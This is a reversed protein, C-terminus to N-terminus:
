DVYVWIDGSGTNIWFQGSSQKTTGARGYTPDRDVFPNSGTIKASMIFESPTINTTNFQLNDQLGWRGVTNDWGFGKGNVTGTQVIIGGDTQSSGSALTIFADEVLLNSTHLLTTDGAVTFNGGVLLNGSATIDGRSELRGAQIGASATLSTIGKINDALRLHITNNDQSGSVTIQNDSGSIPIESVLAGDLSSTLILSVGNGLDDDVSGSQIGLATTPPLDKFSASLPHGEKGTVTLVQGLTGIPIEYPEKASGSWSLLSGINKSSTIHDLRISRGPIFLGDVSATLESGSLFLNLTIDRGVDYSNSISGTLGYGFTLIGREDVGSIPIDTLNTGLGTFVGPEALTIGSGTVSVSGTFKHFNNSPLSGSGFNVSGSTIAVDDVTVGFGSLSFLVGGLGLDGQVTADGGVFLDGSATINGSATISGEVTLAAVPATNGIGVDGTDNIRFIETDHEFVRLAKNQDDDSDITIIVEEKSKLRLDHGDASLVDGTVTVDSGSITGFTVNSGTSISQATSVTYVSGASTVNTQHTTGAVSSTVATIEVFGTTQIGIENGSDISHSTKLQINSGSVFILENLGPQAIFTDTGTINLGDYHAISMSQFASGVLKPDLKEFSGGPDVTIIFNSPDGDNLSATPINMGTSATVQSLEAISGSVIIKKWNAM